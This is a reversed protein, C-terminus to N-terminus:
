SGELAAIPVLPRATDVHGPFGRRQAGNWLLVVQRVEPVNRALTHVISYVRLLELTSGTSPPEGGDEPRLDVYATGEVLILRGLRVAGPFPAGRPPAPRAALLAALVAEARARAGTGSSLPAPEPALRGDEAPLWLTATWSVAPEPAAPAVAAPEPVPPTAPAARRRLAWAAGLAIVLLAGAIVLAAARRSV